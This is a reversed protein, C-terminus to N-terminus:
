GKKGQGNRRHEACCYSASGDTVAENEPFFIGCWACKVMHEARRASARGSSESRERKQRRLLWLFILTIGIFFLYKM